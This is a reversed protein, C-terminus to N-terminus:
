GLTPSRGVGLSKGLFPGRFLENAVTALHKRHSASLDCAEQSIGPLAHRLSNLPSATNYKRVCTKGNPSFGGFLFNGGVTAENFNSKPVLPLTGCGCDVEISGPSRDRM